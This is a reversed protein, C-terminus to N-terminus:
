PQTWMLRLQDRCHPQHRDAEDAATVHDFSQRGAPVALWTVACTALPGEHCDLRTAPVRRPLVALSCDDGLEPQRPLLRVRTRLPPPRCPRNVTRAAPALRAHSVKRLNACPRGILHCVQM